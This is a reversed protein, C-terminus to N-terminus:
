AESRKGKQLFWGETARLQLIEGPQCFHGFLVYKCPYTCKSRLSLSEFASTSFLLMSKRCFGANQHCFPSVPQLLHRLFACRENLEVLLSFSKTSVCYATAPTDNHHTRARRTDGALSHAGFFTDGTRVLPPAPPARRRRRCRHCRGLDGAPGWWSPRM